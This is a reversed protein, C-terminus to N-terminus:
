VTHIPKCRARSKTKARWACFAICVELIQTYRHPRSTPSIRAWLRDPGEATFRRQVLDPAARAGPQRVTTKFGKRRSVGCLGARRMLRAVRKRSM